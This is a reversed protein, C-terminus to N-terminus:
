GGKNLFGSLKEELSDLGAQGKATGLFQGALGAVAGSTQSKQQYLNAIGLKVSAQDALRGSQDLFSLNANTQSQISGLGGKSGSTDLVGQNAASNQARAFSQRSNRIAERRARSRELQNRQRTLRNAQRQAKAAKKSQQVSAITGGVSTAIAVAAVVPGM